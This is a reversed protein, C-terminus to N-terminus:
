RFSIVSDDVISKTVNTAMLALIENQIDHSTYKKTKKKLWGELGDVDKARLYLLQMFNSEIDNKGQIPIGQRAFYQLREIIVVLCKRNMAMEAKLQQSTLEAINGCQSAVVDYTMSVKHCESSSHERFSELAKKWSSFGTTVFAGSKRTVTRLNNLKNQRM